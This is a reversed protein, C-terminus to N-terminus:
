FMSANLKMNLKTTIIEPKRIIALGGHNVFKINDDTDEPILRAVELVDFGLIRLHKITVSESIEHWTESLSLINLNYTRMVELVDDVKNNVLRINLAGIKQQRDVKQTHRSILPSVLSTHKM